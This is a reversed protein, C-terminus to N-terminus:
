PVVSADEPWDEEIRRAAAPQQEVSSPRAQLIRAIGFTGVPISQGRSRSQIVGNIHNVAAPVGAVVPPGALM